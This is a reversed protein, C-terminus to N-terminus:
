SIKNTAVLEKQRELAESLLEKLGEIDDKKQGSLESNKQLNEVVNILATIDKVNDPFQDQNIKRLFQGLKQNNKVIQLLQKSDGEGNIAAMMLLENSVSNVIAMTKAADKVDKWIREKKNSLAQKRLAPNYKLVEAMKVPHPREIILRLAQSQSLAENGLNYIKLENNDIAKTLLTTAEEMRKTLSNDLEKMESNLQTNKQELKSLDNSYDHILKKVNNVLESVQEYSMANIQESRKEAAIVQLEMVRHYIKEELAEKAALYSFYEKKDLQRQKVAEELWNQLSINALLVHEKNLQLLTMLSQYIPSLPNTLAILWEHISVPSNCAKIFEEKATESQFPAKYRPSRILRRRENKSNLQKPTLTDM